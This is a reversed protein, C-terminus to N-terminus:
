PERQFAHRYVYNAVRHGQAIAETKDFAWHIGLYIRSQGNEEEAQSFSDFSRPRWPRAEGDNGQTVGNLEDSVFTFAYRDTGYFKRLIQFLAGGFGGHGSPYSPFPPTFNPGALNSAPSGLPTFDPDGLTAPNGDGKGTPGSGEDAERIGTVPRWFNYHYKSEWIAIGADALTTHVLALLRALRMVNTTNKSIERVIQNYLRPPACLSPTGDYAWFIGIETQEDTRQTLTTMGDGGLTLAENYANTYADSDMPPPPPVRFSRASPIVFPRVKGWNKGLAIPSLGIPDQRWVGPEDGPVYQTGMLPDNQRGGDHRRLKLIATAARHGVAIGRAVGVPDRSRRAQLEQRLLEDLVPKQSPYLSVLTDHAAKAIAADISVNGHVRPQGSYSVYGGRIANGADFIAIHVIAMARSARGPGLQEGFVRNEGEVLPTHDLGSANVAVDNWYRLTDAPGQGLREPAISIDDSAVSRIPRYTEGLYRELGQTSQRLGPAVADSDDAAAPTAFSLVTILAFWGLQKM